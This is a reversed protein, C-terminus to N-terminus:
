IGGSVGGTETFSFVSGPDQQSFSVGQESFFQAMSGFNHVFTDASKDYDQLAQVFATDGQAQAIVQLKAGIDLYSQALATHFSSVSDPVEQMQEMYTGISSYGQGLAIVENAKAQDSRDEAQDKLVQAQDTHLNEFAQIEAGVQNGYDYLDKQSPSMSREAPATTAILGSPVFQYAQAVAQNESTNSKASPQVSASGSMQALFSEYDFSNSTQQTQAPAASPTSLPSLSLTSPAQGQIVIQAVQQPSSAPASYSPYAPAPTGGSWTLPNQAPAVPTRSAVIVSGVVFVSVTIILTLVYPHIRIWGM